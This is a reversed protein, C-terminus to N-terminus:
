LSRDRLRGDVLPGPAPQQRPGARDPGLPKSATLVSQDYSDQDSPEQAAPV